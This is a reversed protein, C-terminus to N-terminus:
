KTQLKKIVEKGELVIELQRFKEEIMQTQNQLKQDIYTEIERKVVESKTQIVLAVNQSGVESLPFCSEMQPFSASNADRNASLLDM